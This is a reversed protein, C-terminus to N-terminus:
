VATNDVEVTAMAEKWFVLLQQHQRLITPALSGQSFKGPFDLMLKTPVSWGRLLCWIFNNQADIM